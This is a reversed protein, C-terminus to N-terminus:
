EMRDLNLKVNFKNDIEKIELKHKGPYLLELRRHINNLGIGGITTIEEGSDKRIYNSVEFLISSNRIEIKTKIGPSEVKKDCHKFANEVFPVLLMPAIKQGVPDGVVKFDIFNKQKIRLELLEIYSELYIIEKELPVKDSNTEYLMYRMIESLKMMAEPAKESKKLVLSYINNLTNFLFHPNIQSRLLALESTQNQNILDAQKQKDKVWRITFKSMYALGTYLVTTTYAQSLFYDRFKLRIWRINVHDRLYAFIEYQLLPYFILFLISIIILILIRNRDYLQPIIFSFFLYFNLITFLTNFAYIIFRDHNFDNQDDFTLALTPLIMICWAGIHILLSLKKNSIIGM